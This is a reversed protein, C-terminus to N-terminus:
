NECVTNGQLTLESGDPVVLDRENRCFTNGSLTPASLGQVTIGVVNDEITNAEIVPAAGSEIAIASEATGRIRNGRIEPVATFGIALAIGFAIIASSLSLRIKM